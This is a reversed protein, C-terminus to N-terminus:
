PGTTSTNTLVACCRVQSRAPPSSPLLPSTVPRSAPAFGATSHPRHAPIKLVSLGHPSRIMLCYGGWSRLHRERSTAGEAQVARTGQWRMQLHNGTPRFYGPLCGPVRATGATPAPQLPHRQQSEGHRRKGRTGPCSGGSRVRETSPLAAGARQPYGPFLHSPTLLPGSSFLCSTNPSHASAVSRPNPFSHLPRCCSGLFFALGQDSGPSPSAWSVRGQLPGEHIVSLPPSACDLGLM